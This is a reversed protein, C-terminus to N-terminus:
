IMSFQKESVKRGDIVIVATHKGSRWGRTPGSSFTAYAASEPIRRKDTRVVNGQPDLWEVEITQETSASSVNVSVYLEPGRQFQDDASEATVAGTQTVASGLAFVEPSPDANETPVVHNARESRACAITMILALAIPTVTRM